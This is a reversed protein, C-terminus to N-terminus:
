FVRSFQRTETLKRETVEPTLWYQVIKEMQAEAGTLELDETMSFTKEGYERPLVCRYHATKTELAQPADQLTRVPQSAPEYGTFQCVVNTRVLIKRSNILRADAARVQCCAAFQMQQNAAPDDARISYPLYCELARPESGDEPVYLIGARVGGTVIASGDRCEKGRM